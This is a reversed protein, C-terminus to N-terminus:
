YGTWSINSLQDHRSRDPRYLKPSWVHRFAYLKLLTKIILISYLADYGILAYPTTSGANSTFVFHFAETAFSQRGIFPTQYDIYLPRLGKPEIGERDSQSVGKDSVCGRDAPWHM